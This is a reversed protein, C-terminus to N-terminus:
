IHIMHTRKITTEKNFGMKFNSISENTELIDVNEQPIM